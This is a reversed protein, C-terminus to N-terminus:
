RQSMVLDLGSRRQPDAILEVEVDRRSPERSGPPAVGVSDARLAESDTHSSGVRCLGASPRPLGPRGSTAGIALSARGPVRARGRDDAAAWTRSRRPTRAASGCGGALVADQAEEVSGLVRDAVARLHRRHAEFQEALVNDANV